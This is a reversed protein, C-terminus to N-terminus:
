ICPTDEKDAKCARSLPQSVKKSNTCTRLLRQPCSSLTLEYGAGGEMADKGVGANAIKDDGQSLSIYDRECGTEIVGNGATGQTHVNDPLMGSVDNRTPKRNRRRMIKEKVMNM